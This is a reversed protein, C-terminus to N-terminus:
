SIKLLEFNHHCNTILGVVQDLYKRASFEFSDNPSNFFSKLTDYVVSTQDVMTSMVFFNVAWKSSNLAHIEDVQRIIKVTTM